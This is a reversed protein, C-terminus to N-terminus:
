ASVLIDQDRQVRTSATESQTINAIKCSCMTFAEECERVADIVMPGMNEVGQEKDSKIYTYNKQLNTM